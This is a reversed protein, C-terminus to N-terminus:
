LAVKKPNQSIMFESEEITEHDNLCEVKTNYSNKNNTTRSSTPWWILSMLSIAFTTKTHDKLVITANLTQLSIESKNKDIRMSM